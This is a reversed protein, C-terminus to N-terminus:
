LPTWSSKSKRPQSLRLVCLGSSSLPNREQGGPVTSRMSRVVCASIAIGFPLTGKLSPYSHPSWWTLFAEPRFAELSKWGNMACTIVSWRFLPDQTLYLSKFTTLCAKFILCGDAQYGWGSQGVVEPEHQTAQYAAVTILKPAELNLFWNSRKAERIVLFAQHDVWQRRICRLLWSWNSVLRRSLNSEWPQKEGLWSSSSFAPWGDYFATARISFANKITDGNAQANKYCQNGGQVTRMIDYPPRSDRASSDLMGSSFPLCPIM